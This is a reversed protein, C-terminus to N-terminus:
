FPGFHTLQNLGGQSALVEISISRTGSWSCHQPEARYPSSDEMYGAHLEASGTIGLLHMEAFKKKCTLATTDCRGSCNQAPVLKVTCGIGKWAIRAVLNPLSFSRISPPFSRWLLMSFPNRSRWVCSHTWLWNSHFASCTGVGYSAFSFSSNECMPISWESFFPGSFTVPPHLGPWLRRPPIRCGLTPAIM